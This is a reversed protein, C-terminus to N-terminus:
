KQGQKTLWPAWKANLQASITMAQRSDVETYRSHVGNAVYPAAAREQPTLSACDKLCVTVKAKDDTCIANGQARAQAQMATVYDKQYDAVLAKEQASMQDARKKMLQMFPSGEGVALAPTGACSTQTLQPLHSQQPPLEEEVQGEVPAKAPVPVQAWAMTPVISLLVIIHRLARM